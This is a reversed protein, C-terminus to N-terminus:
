HSMAYVIFNVGMEYAYTSYKLPYYPNDAWEWADGLDTNWNIIVMLRGNEDHIGKVMPIFGDREWTPCRSLDAQSFATCNRIGINPVQIVEDIEYFTTFINHDIDLDVIEYEPLVQRIEYEFNAWERTGWFDDIVLFGGALLYSRLGEVEPPSLSMRGVELAYLFPFRRIDPDDLTVVFEREYADLNPLLRDIFSLFIQDARPFDVAWSGGRGYYGGYGRYAVRSFYFERPIGETLIQPPSPTTVESTPAGPVAPPSGLLGILAIAGISWWIARM